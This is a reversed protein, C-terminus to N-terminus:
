ATMAERDRMARNWVREVQDVYEVESEASARQTRVYDRKEQETADVTLRYGKYSSIIRGGSLSKLIRGVRDEVGIAAFAVARKVWGRGSLYNVLQEIRPDDPAVEPKGQTGLELQEEARM